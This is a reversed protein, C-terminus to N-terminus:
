GDGGSRTHPHADYNGWAQAWASLNPNLRSGRLPNLTLNAQELLEDWLHLPFQPDTACASNATANAPSERGARNRRNRRPNGVAFSVV